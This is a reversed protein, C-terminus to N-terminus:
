DVTTNGICYLHTGTRIFLQNGVVVPSSLTYSGDLENTAIRQFEPGAALVATTSNEDVIYLKGDALIPSASVTGGVTRQPGWVREGTEADLCSAAGRDDVLYVYTGDAIPTPVDPAGNNNWTWAETVGDAGGARLAVLPRQRSPAIILDGAVVPSAIIRYNGRKQPNLGGARWVERGTEPDHGTVYDGGSIVIRTRGGVTLLAPTTYADPSENVADTPREVRWIPAGSASNLAVIYSPDDTRMGHLVQIILKGDYLLPSSAYGWNLGFNGYEEQLRRVWVPNGEMDLATVVGNGTVAWVHKGDTVPSPSSNNQKNWLRNGEDLERQWLPSGDQRSFCLLLLTQGGPDRGGRRQGFGGGPRGRGRGRRPQQLAPGPPQAGVAAEAESPSTVFIRDEWIVPTGGSWAPLETKWVINENEASSWSTPLNAGAAVGNASPGRWQPWNDEAAAIRGLSAFVVIGLVLVSRGNM